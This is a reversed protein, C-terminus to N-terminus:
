KGLRSGPWTRPPNVHMPIPGYKDSPVGPHAAEEEFKAELYVADENGSLLVRVQEPLLHYKSFVNCVDQYLQARLDDDDSIRKLFDNFPTNSPTDSM